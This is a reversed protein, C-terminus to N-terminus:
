SLFLRNLDNTQEENIPVVTGLARAAIIAKASFEAVELRDFAHLLDSGTSILCDNEILVLPNDKTITAALEDLDLYQPGFPLLLIDRLLIYSEPITRTDFPTASVAFAMLNPPFALIIANIDPHQEYVKQHMLVSRSPLKGAERKGKQILVIDEIEMNRRDAGYPTILFGTADLRTSFTGETSTVLMHRYSREVLGCMKKRLEKERSSHGEPVIEPLYHTRHNLLNIQVDSLFQPKGLINAKIILRACFDLTEFRQFAQLVSIGSAVTGHNELLVTDHGQAFVDAINKSLQESGPIAYPAYGVKGCVQRATPFVRTDPIQRVISFSVLAAPHAHLIAKIDKRCEYIARHFPYESSPKHNGETSSDRKVRVIDDRRLSGKDVAAPTIWIDGNQDLISINGGSMTTMGYGYIREMIAVIQDAPHLLDFKM